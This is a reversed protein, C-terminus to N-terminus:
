YANIEIAILSRDKAATSIKLCMSHDLGVLMCFTDNLMKKYVIYIICRKNFNKGFAKTYSFICFAKDLVLKRLYFANFYSTRTYDRYLQYISIRHRPLKIM